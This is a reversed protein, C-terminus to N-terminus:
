KASEIRTLIDEPPGMRQLDPSSGSVVQNRPPASGPCFVLVDDGRQGAIYCAQGRLLAPEMDSKVLLRYPFAAMVLSVLFVLFGGLVVSWSMRDRTRTSLRWVPVWVAGCIITSWVFWLRYNEHADKNAASLFALKASPATSITDPYIALLQEIFPLRSWWTVALVVASVILAWNSASTVDNLRLRSAVGSLGEDLRRAVGSVSLALRRVVLLITVILASFVALALTSGVSLIGWYLWDAPSERVFPARALVLNNSFYSSVWGLFTILSLAAAISALVRIALAKWSTGAAITASLSKLLAGASPWRAKPNAATARDVIKVFASPLNKRRDSIPTRQSLLHATKIEAITNGEVPYKGTVLHYLLVGVAYVDSVPTAPEGVLVEPAMYPPTGVVNAPGSGSEEDIERRAGFDMLVIRGTRDRMINRAKVDRHVYGAAHVASLARCVDQGVITAERANMTGRTKLVEELTDGHVFEMCLGIRNGYSEVGLVSVVYPNRVKALARGEQLLQERLKADSVQRHLIKIAVERELEPDFARYVSGYSGAGVM